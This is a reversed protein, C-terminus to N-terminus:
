CFGIHFLCRIVSHLVRHIVGRLVVHIASVTNCEDRWAWNVNGCTPCDWDPGKVDRQFGGRGNGRGRGGGRGVGRGAGGGGSGFGMPVAMSTSSTEDVITEALKSTDIGNTGGSTTSNLSNWLGSPLVPVGGGRGRGRGASIVSPEPTDEVDDENDGEM